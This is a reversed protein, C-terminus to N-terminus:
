SAAKETARRGRKVSVVRTEPASVMQTRIRKISGARELIEIEPDPFEDVNGPQHWEDRNDQFFHMVLAKM